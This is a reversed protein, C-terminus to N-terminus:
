AAWRAAAGEMRFQRVLDDLTAIEQALRRTAGTTQQAMEANRQTVQDMEKVAGNVEDLRRSQEAAAAAIADVIGNLRGIEAAIRALAKGTAGVKAVGAAVQRDSTSILDSIRRAMDASRGALARVEMAVVAFGRGAEGARAAEVGANLALLNTQFAIEDILGTIERIEKASRSLGDMAAIAEGVVAAGRKAEGDAAAAVGRAQVAGASSAKMTATIDGLAASSQELKAAQREAGGSLEDAGAGLDRCEHALAAAAAALASLTAGLKQQAQEFDTRLDAFEVPFDAGLRRRLDGEALAHLAAGLHRMAQTQVQVTRERETSAADRESVAAARHRDAERELERRRERTANRFVASARAMAGIEDRRALAPIEVETEGEALRTMIRTLARIPRLIVVHMRWGVLLCILAAVGLGILQDRKAVAVTAADQQTAADAMAVNHKIATKVADQFVHISDRMQTRYLTAAADGPAAAAKLFRDDLQLYDSWTSKIATLESAEAAASSLRSQRAFANDITDRIEGLTKGEAAKGEPPALAVAAEIVRFRQGQYSIEGLARTTPLWHGSVERADKEVESLRDLALVGLGAACLFLAAFGVAFKAMVGFGADPTPASVQM